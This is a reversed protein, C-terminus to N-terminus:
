NFLLKKKLIIKIYRCIKESFVKAYFILRKLIYISLLLFNLTGLNRFDQADRFFAWMCIEAQKNPIDWMQAWIAFRVWDVRKFQGLTSWFFIVNEIKKLLM